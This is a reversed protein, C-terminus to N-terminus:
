VEQCFPKTAAPKISRWILQDLADWRSDYYLFMAARNNSGKQVAVAFDKRTADPPLDFTIKAYEMALRENHDDFQGLLDAETRMVWDYFEDPVCAVLDQLDRDNSLHEWVTRASVGTIIKHLRVYEEHKVKLRLDAEPWYVVFGEANDRQVALAQELSTYPHIEACPGEWGFEVGWDDGVAGVPIASRGSVRDLVDLLFLEDIAGYDVVIRNQPYVIEFLYQLDPRPSFETHRHLLETAHLAQDSTFSGRTAIELRRPFDDLLIGLSGDIKEQVRVTGNPLASDHEGYNFFKPFPRAIVTGDRSVVLGRCQLTAENWTLSYQAQPTYNYISYDGSPHDSVSIMKTTLMEFLLARDVLDHLYM